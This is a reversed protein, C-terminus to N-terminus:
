ASVEEALRVEGDTARIVAIEAESVAAMSM